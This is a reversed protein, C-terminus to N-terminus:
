TEHPRWGCLSLEYSIFQAQQNVAIIKVVEHGGDLDAESGLLVGHKEIFFVAMGGHHRLLSIRTRLAPLQNVTM